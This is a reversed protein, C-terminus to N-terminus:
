NILGSVNSKYSLNMHEIIDTNASSVNLSNVFNSLKQDGTLTYLPINPAYFGTKPAPVHMKLIKSHETAFINM